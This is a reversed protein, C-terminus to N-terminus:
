FPNEPYHDDAPWCEGPVTFVGQGQLYAAHCGVRLARGTGAAVRQTVKAQVPHWGAKDSVPQHVLRNVCRPAKCDTTCSVEPTTDDMYPDRAGFPSSGTGPAALGALLRRHEM